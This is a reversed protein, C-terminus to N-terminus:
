EHSVEEDMPVAVFCLNQGDAAATLKERELLITRGAEVALVSAKVKKLVRLTREGIVPIDFRMDHGRKAAKVVVIGPGGLRGARKITEDTGEFAEVALITGEKVVVTQGIDLGSTTKAVAVGLAIDKQEAETPPRSGLQGAKPMASEMFLSAPALRVGVEQLRAGIAGFITEANRERLGALLEIMAMDPRVRFLHTPTIQGVMVVEAVGSGAFADLMAQLQGVSLWRTEDVERELAPDTEKKFAVAFLRKVGQARAAQALLRPYAGKGAIIGLAEPIPKEM